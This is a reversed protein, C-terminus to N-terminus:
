KLLKVFEKPNIWECGIKEAMKTIGEDSSVITAELEKALLIVEFDTTSDIIGTRMSERYKERLARLKEDNEPRNDIAFKEALRLGKNIRERVDEIFEYFVAAPLYIAYVSPSRKKVYAELEKTIEGAFTQTEKLVSNPAYIEFDKRKIKRIFGRIASKPTKGFCERTEPNVFLTTDIVFKRM